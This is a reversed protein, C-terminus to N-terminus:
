AAKRYEEPPAFNAGAGTPPAYQRKIGATRQNIWHQRAGFIRRSIFAGIKEIRDPDNAEYKEFADSAKTESLQANQWNQDLESIANWNRKNFRAQYASIIGEHIDLDHTIDVPESAKVTDFDVDFLFNGNEDVSSMIPSNPWVERNKKNGVNVAHLNQLYDNARELARRQRRPGLERLPTENIVAQAHSGAQHRGKRFIQNQPTEKETPNM